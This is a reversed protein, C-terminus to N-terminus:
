LALALVAGALCAAIAFRGLLVSWSTLPKLRDEWELERLAQSQMRAFVLTDHRYDAYASIVFDKGHPLGIASM